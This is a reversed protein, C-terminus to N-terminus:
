LKNVSIHYMALSAHAFVCFIETYLLIETSVYPLHDAYEIKWCYDTNFDTKFCVTITM